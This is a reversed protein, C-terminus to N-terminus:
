DKSDMEKKSKQITDKLKAYIEQAHPTLPLPTDAKNRNHEPNIQGFNAVLGRNRAFQMLRSYVKPYRQLEKNLKIRWAPRALVFSMSKQLPYKFIQKIFIKLKSLTKRLLGASARLPRTMQWSKSKLLSSLHEAHTETQLFWHHATVAVENIQGQLGVITQEQYQQHKELSQQQNELTKLYNDLARQQDELVKLYNGLEQQQNLLVQQQNKLASNQNQLTSNQNELSSMKTRLAVEYRGALKDLPLGYNKQFASDFLVLQRFPANKQAVVAYDPSAGEFVDMLSLNEAELVRPTEQLLLVKNRSFGSYETLFSLLLHPIPKEHTPDMYFTHTGVTINEANPTELILLGAPKLVRLAENVLKQLAEFPIHEALHFGSVVTLSEDELAELAKIADGFEAPLGLQVCSNLMGEDLDVGKPDFGNELLIELWEGRGCGLDLAKSHGYISRLPMIFPLYVHQRTKILERSGRHRDEFARYFSLSM